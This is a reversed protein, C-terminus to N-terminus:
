SLSLLYAPFVLKEKKPAVAKAKSPKTDKEKNGKLNIKILPTTIEKSDKENKKNKNETFTNCIKPIKSKEDNCIGFPSVTVLEINVKDKPKTINVKPIM